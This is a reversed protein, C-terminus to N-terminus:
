GVKHVSPSTAKTVAKGNSTSATGSETLIRVAEAESQVLHEEQAGLSVSFLVGADNEGKMVYVEGVEHGDQFVDVKVYGPVILDFCVRYGQAKALLLIALRRLREFEWPGQWDCHWNPPCTWTRPDSPDMNCSFWSRSRRRVEERRM